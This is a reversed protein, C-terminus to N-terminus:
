RMLCHCPASPTTLPCRYHRVRPPLRRPCSLGPGREPQIGPVRAYVATEGAALHAGGSRCPALLALLRDDDICCEYATCCATCLLESLDAENPERALGVAAALEDV